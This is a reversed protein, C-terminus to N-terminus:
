GAGVLDAVTVNSLAWLVDLALHFHARSDVLLQASASFEESRGWLIAKVPIAPLATLEAAADGGDGPAGGLKQAARILSAPDDGFAKEIAGTDVIHPGRFFSDGGPLERFAVWKGSPDIEMANALYSTAVLGRQYSVHNGPIANAGDDVHLVTQGSPNVAVRKGGVQLLFTEGDWTAGTSRAAQAPDRKTVEAWHRQHLAESSSYLTNEEPVARSM